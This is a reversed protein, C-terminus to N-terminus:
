AVEMWLCDPPCVEVCTKCGVCVSYDFKPIPIPKDKRMKPGPVMEICRTPCNRECRKCGICTEEDLHPHEQIKNVVPVTERDRPRRIQKASLVLDQREPEALEVVTTYEWASTPCFEGCFGCYLCRGTDVGPRTIHGKKEDQISRLSATEVVEIKEVTICDNPCVRSCLSCGICRGWDISHQGRFGERMARRVEAKEHPYLVTEPKFLSKFTQKIAVYMPKLFYGMLGSEKPEKM